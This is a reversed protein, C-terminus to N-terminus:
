AMMGPASRRPLGGIPLASSNNLWAHRARNQVVPDGARLHLEAGHDLELWVERSVVYEFDNTDTSHMGPHDPELYGVIGPLKEKAEQLAANTDGPL